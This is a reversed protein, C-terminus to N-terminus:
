PAPPSAIGVLRDLELETILARDPPAAGAIKLVAEPLAVTGLTRSALDSVDPHFSGSRLAAALAASVSGPEALPWASPGTPGLPLIGIAADAGVLQRAFEETLLHRVLARVEPRDRLVVLSYVRGRMTTEGAIPLRIQALDERTPALWRTRADAGAHVLWCAPETATGMQAAAWAEPTRVASQPGRLVAGETWVLGHFRGLAAQVIPRSFRLGSAWDVVGMDPGFEDIVLDELWDVGSSGDAEGAAMGLCWPTRGDAIMRAVLTELETWTTPPRYGAERFADVPYWLLSSASAALPLGAFRSGAAQGEIVGLGKLPSAEVAEIEDPGLVADLALLRGHRALGAVDGPRVLLAVDYSSTAVLPDAANDGPTIVLGAGTRAYGTLATGLDLPLQSWIRVTTGGLGPTALEDMTRLGGATLVPLDGDAASAFPGSDPCRDRHLWSRCEDTTLSRGAASAAREVLDTTPLLYIGRAGDPAFRVAVPWEDRPYPIASTQMAWHLADMTEGTIWGRDATARASEVALLLALAPDSDLHGNAAVALERASAIAREEAAGQSQRWVVMLLGTALVAATAFVAVLARLWRAGRRELRRERALREAEAAERHGQDLVSAELLEREGRGLHLDTSAAWAAFMSLRGGILLFGPERDHQLWEDAADSLRRRMWMADREGDVWAALRPWRSILAEHAIEVTAEGARTDRGHALLRARGFVDVVAQQQANETFAGAPVRRASPAGTAEVAVLQLFVQRAAEAADPELSRYTEEARGALAGLVGGMADYAARTLRRDDAQEVLETLTYQLLPLTAPRDVVDGVIADALGADLSLGARAAPREVARTLEDRDLPPVLETGARVLPGLVPSRLAAELHDVRLTAVVVLRGASRALGDALVELFAEPTADEGQTLTWLEELQDIVLLLRDTPPILATIASGLATPDAALRRADPPQRPADDEADPEADAALVSRLAAALEEFPRSGPFMVAIRWGAQDGALGGRVAPLLGARVVSSKGSGSSGVVALLGSDRAVEALRDVLREILRERGFFDAADGEGFPRLGKYPNRDPPGIDQATAPRRGLLSPDQRLIAAELAQLDPSPDIGLEDALVRRADRYVRLADAQRGSRYLATMLLLRARERLPERDVLVELEATIAAHRGLALEAELRDEVARLRLEDLRHIEAAAFSADALGEYPDGRWLELAETLRAVAADPDAGVRAHGDAALRQFRLADLDDPGITLRYGGDRTDICRAGDGDATANALAGRLRGVHFVVVDRGSDPPEDGWLEELIRESSVTRNANVLLLALLARQRPSPIVTVRDRDAVEIPGLVRFEV